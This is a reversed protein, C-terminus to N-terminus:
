PKNIVKRWLLLCHHVKYFLPHSLSSDNIHILKLKVVCIDKAEASRSFKIFLLHFFHYLAEGFPAFFLLDIVKQLRPVKRLKGNKLRTIWCAWVLCVFLSTRNLYLPRANGVKAPQKSRKRVTFDKYTLNYPLALPELIM